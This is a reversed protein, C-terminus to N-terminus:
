SNQPNKRPGDWEAKPIQRFQPTDKRFGADPGLHGLNVPHSGLARGKRCFWCDCCKLDWHATMVIEIIKQLEKVRLELCHMKINVAGTIEASEEIAMM